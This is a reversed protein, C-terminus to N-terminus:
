RELKKKWSKLMSVEGEFLFYVYQSPIGESLIDKGTTFQVRDFMIAFKNAFYKLKEDRIVSEEFFLKKKLQARRKVEGFSLHFSERDMVALEIPGSALCTAAIPRNYVLSLEGFTSGAGM